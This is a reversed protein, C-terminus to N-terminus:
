PIVLGGTVGGPVLGPIGRDGYMRCQRPGAVQRNSKAFEKLGAEAEQKLSKAEERRQEAERFMGLMYSIIFPEWGPPADLLLAKDGVAFKSPLRYGSLEINLETVAAPSVLSSPIATGAYGRIMGQLQGTVLGTATIASYSVIESAIQAMGDALLWGTVTSINISTDGSNLTATTTGAGATRSPTWYLEVVTRNAQADVALMIAISATLNRNRFTEAKNGGELEWGDYWYHDFKLWQGSVVYRRQGSVSAIGVSDYVGGTVRSAFKLAENLWRYVTIASCFTGNSDADAAADPGLTRVELIVENITLSSSVAAM